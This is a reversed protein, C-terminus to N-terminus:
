QLLINVHWIGELQGVLLTLCHILIGSYLETLKVNYMCAAIYNYNVTRDYM